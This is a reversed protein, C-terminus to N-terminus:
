NDEKNREENIMSNMLLLYNILDVIRGNIPESMDAEVEKLSQNSNLRRIFTCISDWHKNMYIKLPIIRDVGLDNAAREFNDFVNDDGKKSSQYEVGKTGLTILCTKILTKSEQTFEENTM